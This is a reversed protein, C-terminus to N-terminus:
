KLTDSTSGFRRRRIRLQTGRHGSPVNGSPLLASSSCRSQCHDFLIYTSWVRWCKVILGYAHSSPDRLHKQRMHCLGPVASIWVALGAACAVALSQNRNIYEEQLRQHESAIYRAVTPDTGLIFPTFRLTLQLWVIRNRQVSPETNFTLNYPQIAQISSLMWRHVRHHEGYVVPPAPWPSKSPPEATRSLPSRKSPPGSTKPLSPTWHSYRSYLM